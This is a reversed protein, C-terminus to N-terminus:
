GQGTSQGQSLIVVRPNGARRLLPLASLPGSRRQRLGEKHSTPQRSQTTPQDASAIQDDIANGDQCSSAGVRIRGESMSRSLMRTRKQPAIAHMRQETAARAQGEEKQERWGVEM